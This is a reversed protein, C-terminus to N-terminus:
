NMPYDLFDICTTVGSSGCGFLLPKNDQPLIKKWNEKFFKGDHLLRTPQFTSRMRFMRKKTGGKPEETEGMFRDQPDHM